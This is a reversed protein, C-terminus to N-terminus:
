GLFEFSDSEFGLAKLKSCVKTFANQSEELNSDLNESTINCDFDHEVTRVLRSLVFLMREKGPIWIRIQNGVIEDNDTIEYFEGGITESIRLSIQSLLKNFFPVEIRQTTYSGSITDPTVTVVDNLTIQNVDLEQNIAQVIAEKLQHEM